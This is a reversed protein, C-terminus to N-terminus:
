AKVSWLKSFSLNERWLFILGLIIFPFFFAAHMIIAVSLALDQSIQFITFGIVVAAHYTGIFGPSSPITVGLIQFILFVFSAYIPLQLGLSNLVFFNSLAFASWLLASLVLIYVLRRGEQVSKLGLVFAHLMEIIRKLWKEPLFALCLRTLRIVQNTKTLIFWWGGFVLLLIPISVYVGGEFGAPLTRRGEVSFSMSVLVLVAIVVITSIDFIKEVVLTALSSVNSVEEKQGILYARIIDGTRAPFLMDAMAGISTASLLNLGGIPQKIPELLYRWRWSRIILTSILSLVAMILFSYQASQLSSVLQTFNLQRIILIAFVASLATGLLFRGRM